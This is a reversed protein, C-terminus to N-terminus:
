FIFCCEAIKGLYRFLIEKAVHFAIKGRYFLGLAAYIDNEEVVDWKKPMKTDITHIKKTHLNDHQKQSDMYVFPPAIRLYGSNKTKEMFTLLPVSVFEKYDGNQEYGSLLAPITYKRFDVPFM